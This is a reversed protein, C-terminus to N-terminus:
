ALPSCFPLELVAASGFTGYFKRHDHVPARPKWSRAPSFAPDNVALAKEDPLSECATLLALLGAAILIKRSRAM